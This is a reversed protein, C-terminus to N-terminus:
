RTPYLRDRVYGNEAGRVLDAATLPGDPGAFHLWIERNYTLRYVQWPDDIGAVAAPPGFQRQLAAATLGPSLPFADVPRAPQEGYVSLPVPADPAAHEILLPSPQGPSAFRNTDVFPKPPPNLGPLPQPRGFDSTSVVPGPSRAAPAVAPRDQDLMDACGALLIVALAPTIRRALTPLPRRRDSM